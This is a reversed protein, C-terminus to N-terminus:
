KHSPAPAPFLTCAPPPPSNHALTSHGVAGWQRKNGEAVQKWTHGSRSLFREAVRSCAKSAGLAWLRSHLSRGSAASHWLVTAVIDDFESGCEPTSICCYCSTRLTQPDVQHCPTLFASRGWQGHGALRRRQAFAGSFTEPQLSYSVMAGFTVSFALPNGIFPFTTCRACYPKLRVKSVNVFAIPVASGVSLGRMSRNKTNNRNKENENQCHM